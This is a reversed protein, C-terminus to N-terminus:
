ATRHVIVQAEIWLRCQWLDIQGFLLLVGFLHHMLLSATPLAGVHQFNKNQYRRCIQVCLNAINHGISRFTSKSTKSLGFNWTLLHFPRSIHKLIGSIYKCIYAM